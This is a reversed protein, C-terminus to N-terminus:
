NQTELMRDISIGYGETPSNVFVHTVAGIIKGDQLIPSGSMGQVIGGTIDILDQDVVQIIFNKTENENYNIRLIKIQYEKVSSGEVNSLITADGLKVDALHGIPMAEFETEIMTNFTGYIGAENNDEITGLGVTTDFSGQLSGASGSTGKTVGAVESYILEGEAVPMLRGSQTEAVSHGLAAYSLDDPNIYTITGIGAMSDKVSVGLKYNGDTMDKYPKASTLVTFGDRELTISVPTNGAKNLERQLEEESYVKVNNVTKIIDGEIINSNVLSDQSGTITSVTSINTIMVGDCQISIGTTQGIPILMDTAYVNMSVLSLGMALAIIKKM